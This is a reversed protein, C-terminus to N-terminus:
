AVCWNNVQDKADVFNHLNLISSECNLNFNRSREVRDPLPEAINKPRSLDIEKFKPMSEMDEVASSRHPDSQM